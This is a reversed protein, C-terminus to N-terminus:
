KLKRISHVCRADAYWSGGVQASPRKNQWGSSCYIDGSKDVKMLYGVLKLDPHASMHADPIFGQQGMSHGAKQHSAGEFLTLELRSGEQINSRNIQDLIDQGHRDLTGSTYRAM